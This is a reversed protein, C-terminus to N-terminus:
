REGQDVRIMKKGYFITDAVDGVAGGESIRLHSIKAGAPLQFVVDSICSGGPPIESECGGLYTPEREFTQQGVESLHYENGRDDVLIAAAKKFTYNVRRAHNAVKMTVVYFEAAGNQEPLNGNATNAKRVNLVSFAFDDYQIEQNFGVVQSHRNILALVALLGFGLVFISATTILFRKWRM